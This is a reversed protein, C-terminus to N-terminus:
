ENALAGAILTIIIQNIPKPKGFLLRIQVFTYRPLILNM